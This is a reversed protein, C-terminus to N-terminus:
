FATLGYDVIITASKNQNNLEVEKLYLGKFGMEFLPFSLDKKYPSANELYNEIINNSGVYNKRAIDM